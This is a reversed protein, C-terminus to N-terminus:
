HPLHEVAPWTAQRWRPDAAGMILGASTLYLKMQEASYTSRLSEISSTVAQETPPEYEEVEISGDVHPINWQNLFAGMLERAHKTHYAMLAAELAHELEPASARTSLWEAKKDVTAKRITEERFRMAKALHATALAKTQPDAGRWFEKLITQRTEPSAIENLIRRANWSESM